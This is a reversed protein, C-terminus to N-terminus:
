LSDGLAIFSLSPHIYRAKRREYIVAPKARNLERYIYWAALFTVITTVAILSYSAIHQPATEAPDHLLGALIVSSFAQVYARRVGRYHCRHVCNCIAKALILICSPRIDVREHWVYCICCHHSVVSIQATANIGLSSLFVCLSRSHCQFTCDLSNQFWWRPCCARSLWIAPKDKRTERWACSLLVQFCKV